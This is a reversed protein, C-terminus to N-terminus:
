ASCHMTTIYRYSIWNSQGILTNPCSYCFGSQTSIFLLHETSKLSKVGYKRAASHDNSYSDHLTNISPFNSVPIKEDQNIFKPKPLASFSLLLLFFFDFHLHMLHLCRLMKWSHRRNRLAPSHKPQLEVSGREGGFLAKEWLIWEPVEEWTRWVSKALFFFDNMDRLSLRPNKLYKGNYAKPVM